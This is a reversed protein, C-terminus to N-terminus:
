TLSRFFSSINRFLINGVKKQLHAVTTDDDENDNLPIDFNKLNDLSNLRNNLHDREVTVIALQEKAASLQSQLTTLSVQQVELQKRLPAINAM